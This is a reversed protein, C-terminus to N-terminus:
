KEARHWRQLVHFSVILYGTQSRDCSGRWLIGMQGEEYDPGEKFVQGRMEKSIKDVGVQTPFSRKPCRCLQTKVPSFEEQTKLLIGLFAGPPASCGKRAM